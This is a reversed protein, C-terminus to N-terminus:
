PTRWEHGTTTRGTLARWSTEHKMGQATLANRYAQNMDDLNLGSDKARIILLELERTLGENDLSVPKNGGSGIYGRDKERANQLEESTEGEGSAELLLTNLLSLCEVRKGESMLRQVRGSARLFYLGENLGMKASQKETYERLEKLALTIKRLDEDNIDYNGTGTQEIM